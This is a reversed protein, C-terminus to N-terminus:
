PRVEGNRRGSGEEERTQNERERLYENLRRTGSRTCNFGAIRTAHIMSREMSEGKLRSLFFSSGYVDGSGTPDVVSLGALPPVYCNREKADEDSYWAWSGKEGDTVVLCSTRRRECM